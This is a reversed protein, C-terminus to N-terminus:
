QEGGCGILGDLLVTITVRHLGRDVDTGHRTELGQIPSGDEKTFDRNNIILCLGRPEATMTYRKLQLELGSHPLDRGLRQM